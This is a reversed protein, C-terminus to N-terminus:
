RPRRAPIDIEDRDFVFRGQAGTRAVDRGDLVITVDASPHGSAGRVGDANDDLFVSGAVRGAASRVDPRPRIIDVAARRSLAPRSRPM